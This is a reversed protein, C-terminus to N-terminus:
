DHKMVELLQLLLDNTRKQEALLAALANRLEDCMDTMGSFDFMGM